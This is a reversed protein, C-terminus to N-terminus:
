LSAPSFMLAYLSPEFLANPIICFSCYLWVAVLDLKSLLQQSHMYDAM